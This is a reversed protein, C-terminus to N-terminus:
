EAGGMKDLESNVENFKERVKPGLATLAVIVVLAIFGIILAYEVMGQGDENELWNMLM